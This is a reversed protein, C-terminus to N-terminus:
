FWYVLPSRRASQVASHQRDGLATSGSSGSLRGQRVCPRTSRESNVRRKRKLGVDSIERERSVGSISRYLMSWHRSEVAAREIHMKRNSLEVMGDCCQYM